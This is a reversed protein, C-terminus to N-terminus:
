HNKQQRILEDLKREIVYGNNMREKGEKTLINRSTILLRKLVKNLNDKLQKKNMM